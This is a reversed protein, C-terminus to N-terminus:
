DFALTGSQIVLPTCSWWRCSFCRSNRILIKETEDQTGLGVPHLLLLNWRGRSYVLGFWASAM